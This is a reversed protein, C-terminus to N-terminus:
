HRRSLWDAGFTTGGIVLALIAQAALALWLGVDGLLCLGFSLVTLGTFILKTVLSQEGVIWCFVLVVLLLVLVILNSV